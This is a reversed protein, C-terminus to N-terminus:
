VPSPTLKKEGGSRREDQASRWQGAGCVVGDGSASVEGGNASFRNRRWANGRITISMGDVSAFM